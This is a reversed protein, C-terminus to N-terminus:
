KATKKTSPRKIGGKAKPENEGDDEKDAKDNEEKEKKAKTETKAKAKEEKKAKDEVKIKEFGKLQALAEIADQGLDKPEVVVGEENFVLTGFSTVMKSNAHKVNKLM